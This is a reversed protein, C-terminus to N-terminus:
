LTPMFSKAIDLPLNARRLVCPGIFLFLAYVELLLVPDDPADQIGQADAQLGIFSPSNPRSRGAALFAM